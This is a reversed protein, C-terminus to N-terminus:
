KRNKFNKNNLLLNLINDYNNNECEKKIKNIDDTNIINKIIPLGDKELNYKINSIKDGKILFVLIIIIIFM